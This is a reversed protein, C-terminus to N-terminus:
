LKKTEVIKGNDYRVWRTLKGDKSWERGVGHRTGQRYVYESRTRGSPYLEVRLGDLMGESYNDITELVGYETFSWSRGDRRGRVYTEQRALKGNAHFRLSPGEFTWRTNGCYIWKTDSRTMTTGQPCPLTSSPTADRVFPVFTPLPTPSDDETGRAEAGADNYTMGTKLALVGGALVLALVVAGLVGIYLPADSSTPPARRGNASPGANPTRGHQLAASSPHAGPAFPAALPTPAAPTIALPAAPPTPAT